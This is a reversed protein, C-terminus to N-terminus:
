RSTLSSSYPEDNDFFVTFHGKLYAADAKPLIITFGNLVKGHKFPVAGSEKISWELFHRNSEEQTVVLCDWGEPSICSGKPLGKFFDWGVPMINLEPEESRFVYGVWVMAINSKSNNTVSYIYEVRGDPLTHSAAKVTALSAGYAFAATSLFVWIVLLVIRM